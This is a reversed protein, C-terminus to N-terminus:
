LTILDGQQRYVNGASGNSPVLGIGQPVIKVLLYASDAGM